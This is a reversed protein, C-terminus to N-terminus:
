RRSVVMKKMRGLKHCPVQRVLKLHPPNIMILGLNDSNVVECKLGKNQNQSHCQYANLRTGVRLNCKCRSAVSIQVDIYHILISAVHRSEGIVRM